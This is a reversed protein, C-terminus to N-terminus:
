ASTIGKKILVCTLLLAIGASLVSWGHGFLMDIGGVVLILGLAYMFVIWTVASAIFAKM